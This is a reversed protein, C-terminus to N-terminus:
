LVPRFVDREVARARSRSSANPDCVRASRSSRGPARERLPLPSFGDRQIGRAGDVAIAPDARAAGAPPHTIVITTRGRRMTQYGDVLRRETAADLAATPEDLVLI